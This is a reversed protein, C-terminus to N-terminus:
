PVPPPTVIPPESQPLRREHRDGRPSDDFDGHPTPAAQRQALNHSQQHHACGLALVCCAVLLM